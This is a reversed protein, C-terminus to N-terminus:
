KNWSGLIRMVDDDSLDGAIAQEATYRAFWVETLADAQRQHRWADSALHLASELGLHAAIQRATAEPAATFEEYRV